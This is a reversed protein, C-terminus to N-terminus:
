WGCVRLQRTTDVARLTVDVPTDIRSWGAGNWRLAGGGVGVTWATTSSQMKVAYLTRHGPDPTVPWVVWRPNIAEPQEEQAWATQADRATLLMIAVLVCVLVTIKKM